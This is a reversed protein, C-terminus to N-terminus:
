FIIGTGDPNCWGILNSTSHATVEGWGSAAPDGGSCGQRAYGVQSSHSADSYYNYEYIYYGAQVMAAAPNVSFTVVTMVAAAMISLSSIGAAIQKVNLL